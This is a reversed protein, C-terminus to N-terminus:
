GIAPLAKATDYAESGGPVIRKCVEKIGEWVAEVTEWLGCGTPDPHFPSSAVYEYLSMGDVYGLPDRQLWRGLQAHYMRNRVHYFGTEADRYYGAFLIANGHSSSNQSGWSGDYFIPQGYPDYAYREVVTGAATV